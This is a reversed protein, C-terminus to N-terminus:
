SFVHFHEVKTGGNALMVHRCVTGESLRTEKAQHSAELHIIHVQKSCTQIKLLRRNTASTLWAKWIIITLCLGAVTHIIELAEHEKKGEANLGKGANEAAQLLYLGVQINQM